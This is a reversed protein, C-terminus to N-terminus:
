NLDFKIKKLDEIVQEFLLKFDDLAGDILSQKESILALELEKAVIYLQESGINKSIGKCSHVLRRAERLNKTALHKEIGEVLRSQNVLFSDIVKQYIQEYGGMLNLALNTDIVKLDSLLIM